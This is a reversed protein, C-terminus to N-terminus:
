NESGPPIPPPEAGAPEIKEVQVTNLSFCYPTDNPPMPHHTRVTVNCYHPGPDLHEVTAKILVEDGIKLPNGKVDHPLNL